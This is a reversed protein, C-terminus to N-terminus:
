VEARSHYSRAGCASPGQIKVFLACAIGLAIANFTVDHGCGGLPMVIHRLIRLTYPFLTQMSEVCYIISNLMALLQPSRAFPALLLRLAFFDMLIAFLSSKAGPPPIWRARRVQYRSRGCLASARLDVVSDARDGHPCSVCSALWAVM